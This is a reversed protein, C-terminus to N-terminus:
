ATIHERAAAANALASIRDALEVIEAFPMQAFSFCGRQIARAHCAIATRIESENIRNREANREATPM